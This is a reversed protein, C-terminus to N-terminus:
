EVSRWLYLSAYSLYPKWAQIYQNMEELSPKNKLKYLQQVAKQLGIDAIPFLNDRGLGFLLFNQATWPGIGRIKVLTGVVEENSMFELEHLDLKNNAIMESLGVLYEAKRQSFQLQRLEEVPIQAATEPRPYHWVGDQKTGYAHVFRETLKHAFKTNLQQHIICKVLSAYLSFDLVIPTGLRANFLEQLDTSQFHEHVAAIPAEWRLIRAAEKLCTRKTKLSKGSIEFLPHRTTGVAKISITENTQYIPLWLMRNVLDIAHLPDIALRELVQDFNYPSHAKVIEKWM